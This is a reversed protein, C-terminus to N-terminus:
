AQLPEHRQWWRERQEATWTDTLGVTELRESLERATRPRQNPDKELCAMVIADLEAPIDFESFASPPQPVDRAHHIIAETASAAEFVLHGTLLWYAICGLAYLDARGDVAGGMAMEPAMFAPSGIVLGKQTLKTHDASEGSKEAVLGFDLVKVFDVDSGYRCVFLNAPKIDRHVLGAAHAEHLSHCAQRLIHITRAPSQAGHLKVFTDLDFGDLLEMVYYFVDDDSLGFDYIEITHPSRLAATAQAEQEFRRLTTQADHTRIQDPRILKVAAPRALMRHNARWVEGMGGAGIQKELRYAGMERARRVDSSLNFMVRASAFAMGSVIIYPFVLGAFFLQPPLDLQTGGYRISLAVSIPVASGSALAAMLANRPRNPVVITFCLVWVAVWSLGFHDIETATVPARDFSGWFEAFAIGFSGAVEFGLGLVMATAASINSRGVLVYLLLAVLISITGPGWDAFTSFEDRVKGLLLVVFYNAFFFTGAYILCISRLRKRARDLLDQPLAGHSRRADVSSERRAKALHLEPPETM